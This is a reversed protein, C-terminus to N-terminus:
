CTRNPKNPLKNKALRGAIESQGTNHLAKNAQNKNIPKAPGGKNLKILTLGMRKTRLSNSPTETAATHTAMKPM